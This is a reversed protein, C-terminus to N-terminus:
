GRVRLMEDVHAAAVDLVPDREEDRVVEERPRVRVDGRMQPIQRRLDRDLLPGVARDDGRPESPSRRSARSAPRRVGRRRRPVGRGDADEVGPEAAEGDRMRDHALKGDLAEDVEAVRRAHRVARLRGLRHPAVAALDAREQELLADLRDDDRAVRRRRVRQRHQAVSSSTGTMPTTSGPARAATRAVREPWMPTMPVAPVIRECAYTRAIWASAGSACTVASAHGSKTGSTSSPHVLWSAVCRM